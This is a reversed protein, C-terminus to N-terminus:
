EDIRAIFVTAGGTAFNPIDDVAARGEESGMSAQLADMDDFSLEAIRQYPVDSGDPTAIGHASEFRRLGPIAKALGAHTDAYHKEFADADDPPGYLVVLKVM